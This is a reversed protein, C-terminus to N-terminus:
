HCCVPPCCVPPPCPVCVPVRVVTQCPVMVCRRVCQVVKTPVCETVIRKCDVIQERCEMRCVKVTVDQTVPRCKYVTCKVKEVYTEARCCTHCCGTCPDCVKCPVLRCRVVDQIVDVPESVYHCCKRKEETWVPVLVNCKVKEVIEKCVLKNVICEVKEEHWQPKYCTVVKDVYTVCCPDCCPPPCCNKKKKFFFASAPDALTLVFAVAVVAVLWKKM